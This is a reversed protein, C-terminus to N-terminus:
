AIEISRVAKVKAEDRKPILINLVGDTYKAEIKDQEVTNPLTFSRQFTSYHFEKRTYKESTEEKSEEQKYGITLVNNNVNLTFLEKRLGPAAVEVRFAEPTEAVNVAPVSAHQDRGIFDFGDFLHAFPAPVQTPKFKVISM